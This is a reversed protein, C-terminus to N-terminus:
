QLLVARYFRRSEGSASTDIISQPNNTLVVNTLNLLSQWRNGAPLESAYELAYRGGLSGSLVLQPLNNSNWNIGLSPASAPPSFAFVVGLNNTGGARTMGYLRGDPGLALSSLPNAGNIGDFNYVTSFGTGDLNMRFITGVYQRGGSLTMGYLMGDVLTFEGYPSIGDDFSHLVRFDSGDPNLRFAVGVGNTGGYPTLGYLVGGILRLYGHPSAGDLGSFSHLVSFGTGGVDMRWVTGVGSAGGEFTQGYLTLGDLTLGFHPTAGDNTGGAFSHLINCGGSLLDISYVVGLGKSGGYRTLGLLQGEWPLVDGHPSSGDLGFSHIQSYGSGDANISFVTGQGNTGGAQTTGYLTTGSATLSNRPDFGDGAAGFV